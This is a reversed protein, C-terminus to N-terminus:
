RAIDGLRTLAGTKPDRKVVLAEFDEVTKLRGESRIALQLVTDSPAPSLGIGGAAADVNQSRIAQIIESASLGREAAKAPNLWVRMAYDGAGFLNVQGIGQLRALQDKVNLLAYNRLYLMDYRGDKSLLHVVMTLDPSSKVTTVGLQRTVEPLRPTAQAVRNQVLQQALDPDTGIKFTVTLTLRGDSAAQSNMYLMNEVGNIQEELPTAVTEAVTAPNAGPYSANVVVSPPVVEPYESIPLLPLSILGALFIFLSLVAAYIPRDIFFDSIRM